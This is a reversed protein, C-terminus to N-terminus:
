PRWDFKWFVGDDFFGDRNVSTSDFRVIKVRQFHHLRQDFKAAAAFRADLLHLKQLAVGAAGRHVFASEGALKNGCRHIGLAVSAHTASWCQAKGLLWERRPM